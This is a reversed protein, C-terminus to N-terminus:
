AWITIETTRTTRLFGIMIIPELRNQEYHIIVGQCSAVLRAELPNGFTSRVDNAEKKRIRKMRKKEKGNM